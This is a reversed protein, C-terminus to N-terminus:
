RGLVRAFISPNAADSRRRFAEDILEAIDDPRLLTQFPGISTEHYSDVRGVGNVAIFTDLETVTIAEACWEDLRYGLARMFDEYGTPLLPHNRRERGGSQRGAFAAAFLDPFDTHPFELAEPIRGGPRLVRVVFGAGIEVLNVSRYGAVDLERGIVRLRNQYTPDRLQDTLEAAGTM